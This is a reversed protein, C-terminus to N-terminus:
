TVGTPMDALGSCATSHTGSASPVLAKRCQIAKSGAKPGRLWACISQCTACPVGPASFHSTPTGHQPEGADQEIDQDRRGQDAPGGLDGVVLLGISGIM